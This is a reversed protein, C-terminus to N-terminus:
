GRGFRIAMAGAISLVGLLALLPLKSATAPMEVESETEVSSVMPAPATYTEVTAEPTIVSLTPTTTETITVDEPYFVVNSSALRALQRARSAEYVIDHGVLNPPHSAFWTRLARPQGEGAPFYVFTSSPIVEGPKLPHPVTLATAFVKTGDVNTVQITNRDTTTALVKITYTGPQLITGGVDTPESVALTSTEVVIEASVAPVFLLLALAGFTM